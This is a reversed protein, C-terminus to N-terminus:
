VTKRASPKSTKEQSGFSDSIDDDLYKAKLRAKREEDHQIEFSLKGKKAAKLISARPDSSVNSFANM